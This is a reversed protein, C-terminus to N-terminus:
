DLARTETLPSRAHKAFHQQIPEVLDLPNGLKPAAHIGRLAVDLLNLAAHGVEDLLKGSWWIRGTATYAEAVVVSQGFGVPFRSPWYFRPM